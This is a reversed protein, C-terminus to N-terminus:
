PLEEQLCPADRGHFPGNARTFWTTKSNKSFGTQVLLPLPRCHGPANAPSYHRNSLQGSCDHFVGDLGAARGLTIDLLAFRDQLRGRPQEVLVADLGRAEGHVPVTYDNDDEIQYHENEAIAHAPGGLALALAHGFM